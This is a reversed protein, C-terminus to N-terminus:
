KALVDHMHLIISAFPLLHSRFFTAFDQQEAVRLLLVRLNEFTHVTAENCPKCSELKGTILMIKYTLVLLLEPGFMELKQM